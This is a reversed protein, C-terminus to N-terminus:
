AEVRKIQLITNKCSKKAAKKKIFTYPEIKNDIELLWGILVDLILDDGLNDFGYYGWIGVKM